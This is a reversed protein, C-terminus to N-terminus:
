QRFFALNDFIGYLSSGSYTFIFIVLICMLILCLDLLMCYDPVPSTSKNTCHESFPSDEIDHNYSEHCCKCKIANYM